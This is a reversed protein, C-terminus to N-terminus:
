FDGAMTFAWIPSKPPFTSLHTMFCNAVKKLFSLSRGVKAVLQSISLRNERAIASDDTAFSLESKSPFYKGSSLFGPRSSCYPWHSKELFVSESVFISSPKWCNESIPVSYLPLFYEVMRAFSCVTPLSAMQMLKPVFLGWSFNPFMMLKLPSFKM